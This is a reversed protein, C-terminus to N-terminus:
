RPGVVKKETRRPLYKPGQQFSADYTPLNHSPYCMKNVLVDSSVPNPQTGLLLM